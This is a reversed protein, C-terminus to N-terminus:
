GNRKVKIDIKRSVEDVNIEFGVGIITELIQLTTSTTFTRNTVPLKLSYLALVERDTMDLNQLQYGSLSLLYNLSQGIYKINSPFTLNIVQLLPYKQELNTDVKLQTYGGNGVFLNSSIDLTKPTDANAFAAVPSILLLAGYSILRNIM